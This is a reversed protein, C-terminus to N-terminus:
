EVALLKEMIASIDQENTVQATIVVYAGQDEFAAMWYGDGNKAYLVTVDGIVDEREVQRFAMPLIKVREMSVEEEVYIEQGDAVSGLRLWTGSQAEGDPQMTESAQETPPKSTGAWLNLDMPLVALLLVAAVALTTGGAAYPIIKKRRIGEHAEERAVSEKTRAVLDAPAKISSFEEKVQISLEQETM